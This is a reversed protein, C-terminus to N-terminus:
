KPFVAEWAVERTAPSKILIRVNPGDAKLDASIGAAADAASVAASAAKYGGTTIRLEYPDGAVVRSRGALVNRAGNWELAAVDVLGQTVHRSTSVLQPRGAARVLAIVRCSSPRMEFERRVAFEPVFENEWFDFGVYRDQPGAALGAKALDLVIKGPAAADWQFLGVIDRAAEGQGGRLHWVEPLPREFLDIPRGCVGANPMTRRVVDLKEPPLGPLWESVVNLDGALSIMSGWARAQDLTLPDRLMLCDPDNHWVRHNFFYLRAAQPVATRTISSWKAGIDAGVRMADVLGFSAGLTRMNQAINCGLIYVDKGAAERVLKLGDRYAEVNTKAPDHFVADGLGDPRYAPSPYLISAAMGSWLGDIKIYKYGWERCMRSVVGALFARAAPHTMDLCDGAWKVSYVKGDDRHVFWDPHGALAPAKIVSWGFPIFWIGATLGAARIADATEKMGRPYKGKPNHATFDRSGIQWGDDIQLFDLGFDTLKRDRCFKALEAMRDQDLARAHYWTCYGSPCKRLTIANARAVADAYAELGALADDFWGVALTEGDASGGPPVLLRGYESRAELAVSKGQPRGTVVGSGRNHTLWGAVAGGRDAPRVVALFSYSTKEKDAPALGDCGFFRGGAAPDGASVSASFPALDKVVIPQKSKNGITVSTCVFPLGEYLRVTQAAGARRVEIAKGQGLADRCDIIRAAAGDGAADPWLAASELFATGGRRASLRRQKLDYTVQLDGSELRITDGEQQAKVAMAPGAKGVAEACLAGATWACMLVGVAAPILFRM